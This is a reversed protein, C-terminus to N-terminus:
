KSCRGDPFWSPRGIDDIADSVSSKSPNLGADKMHLILEAQTPWAGRLNAMSILHALVQFVVTKKRPIKKTKKVQLIFKLKEFDGRDAAEKSAQEIAKTAEARDHLTWDPNETEGINHHFGVFSSVAWGVTKEHHECALAATQVLEEAFQNKHIKKLEPLISLLREKIEEESQFMLVRIKADDGEPFTVFLPHQHYGWEGDHSTFGGRRRKNESNESPVQEPM